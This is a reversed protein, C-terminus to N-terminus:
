GCCGVGVGARRAATGVGGVAGFIGAANEAEFALSRVPDVVWRRCWRFNRRCISMGLAIGGLMAALCDDRLVSRQTGPRLLQREYADKWM